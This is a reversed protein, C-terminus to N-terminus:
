PMLIVTCSLMKFVKCCLSKELFGGLIDRFHKKLNFNYQLITGYDISARHKLFNIKLIFDVLKILLGFIKLVWIFNKVILNVILNNILEFLIIGKGNWMPKRLAVPGKWLISASSTVFNRSWFHGNLDTNDLWFFQM